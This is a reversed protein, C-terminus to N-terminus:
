YSCLSVFKLETAPRKGRFRPYNSFFSTSRQELDSNYAPAAHEVLARLDVWERM